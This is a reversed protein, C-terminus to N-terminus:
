PIVLRLEFIRKSFEEIQDKLDSFQFRGAMKGMQAVLIEKQVEVLEPDFVNYLLYNFAYYTVSTITFTLFATRLADKFPFDQMKRQDVCAKVMGAIYIILSSWAVVPNFFLKVNNMYFLLFYAVVGVGAILGYKLAINNNM